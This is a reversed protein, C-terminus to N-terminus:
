PANSYRCHMLSRQVAHTTPLLSLQMYILCLRHSACVQYIAINRALCHQQQISALGLCHVELIAISRLIVALFTPCTISAEKMSRQEVDLAWPGLPQGQVDQGQLKVLVKLGAQRHSNSKEQLWIHWLMLCLRHCHSLWQLRSRFCHGVNSLVHLRAMAQSLLGALVNIDEHICPEM